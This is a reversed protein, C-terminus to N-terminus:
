RLGGPAETGAFFTYTLAVHATTFQYYAERGHEGSLTVRVAHTANWDISGRASWPKFSRDYFTREVTVSPPSAVAYLVPADEQANIAYRGGAEIRLRRSAQVSANALASHVRINNPTYYPNYEGPVMTPPDGPRVTINGQPLFRSEDASQATFGYGVHLTGTEGSALPALIWGFGSSVSNSDPYIEHRAGVEGNWSRAKGWRANAELTHVMIGQDLSRVTSTYPSRAYRAQLMVTGPLRVGLAIRATWDLSEGFSRDVLGAGAVLDLHASPFYSTVSAEAALMAESASNADYLSSRARVDIPTLPTVFWGGEANFGAYRLPQDDDWLDSDIRVWPAAATEIELLLRRADAVSSDLALAARFEDRAKTFDGRWYDATGLLTRARAIQQPSFSVSDTAVVPGLIARARSANGTEVLFRGYELRLDADGPHNAIARAYVSSAAAQDKSWYAMLAAFRAAGSDEPHSEVYARMLAAAGAFDNADRLRRAEGITDVRAAAIQASVNAAALVSAALIVWLRM